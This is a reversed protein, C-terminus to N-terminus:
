AEQFFTRGLFVQSSSTDNPSRKLPFYPKKTEGDTIGALPFGVEHDFAQYPLTITVTKTSDSESAALNFSVSTNEALLRERQEESVLYMGFTENWQLGFKEEFITYVSKPLWIEPLASDLQAILDISDLTQDGVTISKVTLTLENGNANRRFDVKTLAEDMNVLSSDYGGFTLSGFSEPTKYQAGATYAWTLGSVASKSKLTQLTSNYYTSTNVPYAQYGSLGLLGIFPKKSTYGAILQGELTENYDALSISSVGMASKVGGGFYFEETLFQVALNPDGNAATLNEWTAEPPHLVEGRLTECTSPETDNCGEELVALTLRVSSAPLLHVLKQAPGIRVDFVSWPGDNGLWHRSPTISLAM